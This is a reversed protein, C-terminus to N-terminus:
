DVIKDLALESSERADAKLVKTGQELAHRNEETTNSAVCDAPVHLSFGRL